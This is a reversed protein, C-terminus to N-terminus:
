SRRDRDEGAGVLYFAGAILGIAALGLVVMGAAELALRGGAVVILLMGVAALAVLAIAANRQPRTVNM